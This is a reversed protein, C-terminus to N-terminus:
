VGTYGASRSCTDSRKHAGDVGADAVTSVPFRQPFHISGIKRTRMQTILASFGKRAGGHICPTSKFLVPVSRLIDEGTEEERWELEWEKQAIQKIIQNSASRLSPVAAHPATSDDKSRRSRKNRSGWGTTIKAAIQKKTEKSIGMHQCGTYKYRRGRNTEPGM